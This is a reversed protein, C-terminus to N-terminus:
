LPAVIATTIRNRKNRSLNPLPRFDGNTCYTFSDFILLLKANKRELRSDFGVRNMKNAIEVIEDIYLDSVDIRMVDGVLYFNPPKFLYVLM